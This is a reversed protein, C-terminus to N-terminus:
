KKTKQQQQQKKKQPPPILTELNYNLPSVFMKTKEQPPFLSPTDILKQKKGLSTM